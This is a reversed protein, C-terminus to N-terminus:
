SPIRLELDFAIDEFAAKMEDPEENNDHAKRLLKFEALSLEMLMGRRRFDELNFCGPSSDLADMDSTYDGDDILHGIACKRGNPGRYLCAMETESYSRQWGQAQLGLYTTNFTQQTIM